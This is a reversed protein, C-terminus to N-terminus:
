KKGKWIAIQNMLWDQVKKNDNIAWNLRDAVTKGDVFEPKFGLTKMADNLYTKDKALKKYAARMAEVAAKPSGPALCTNRVMMGQLTQIWRIAEWVMGSPMKGYKSKYLESLTPM